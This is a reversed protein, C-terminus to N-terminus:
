FLLGNQKAWDSPSKAHKSLNCHPCLLQLNEPWNSGGLILPIIHDIHFRRKRIPVRCRLNACLGRQLSFILSIDEPFYGGEAGRKRARRRHRSASFIEPNSRYYERIHEINADYYAKSSARVKDANALVYARSYAKAKEANAKYWEKFRALTYALHRSRWQRSYAKAGEANAEYYSRKAAKVGEPDAAKKARMKERGVERRREINADYNTKQIRAACDL